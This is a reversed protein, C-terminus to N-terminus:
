AGAGNLADGMKGTIIKLMDGSDILETLARELYKAEGADTFYPDAVGGKQQRRQRELSPHHYEIHEHQAAAYVSSFGVTAVTATLVESPTAATSIGGGKEGNAVRDGNVNVYLSGRLDGYEAPARAQSDTGLRIAADMVGTMSVTELGEVLDDLKKQVDKLGDVAM